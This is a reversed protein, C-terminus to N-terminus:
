RSGRRWSSRRRPRSRMHLLPFPLGEGDLESRGEVVFGRAEYFRHAGTNQENVDVTLEADPRLSRAEAILRTGFGRRLHEPALFLSEIENGGMGMFGAVGGAEACVVYLESADSGLYDRVRPELFAIDAETLFTHTARVSRLWIDFLAPRDVPRARRVQMFTVIPSENEATMPDPSEGEDRHTSVPGQPTVRM